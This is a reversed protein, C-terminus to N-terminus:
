RIIPMNYSYCSFTLPKRCQQLADPYQCTETYQENLQNLKASACIPVLEYLKISGIFHFQINRCCVIALNKTRFHGAGISIRKIRLRRAPLTPEVFLLNPNLTLSQYFILRVRNLCEFRFIIKIAYISLFQISMQKSHCKDCQHLEEQRRRKQTAHFLHLFLLFNSM